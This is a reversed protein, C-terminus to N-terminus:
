RCLIANALALGMLPDQYMTWASTLAILCLTLGVVRLGRTM